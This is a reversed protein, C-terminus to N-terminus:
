KDIVVQSPGGVAEDIRTSSKMVLLWSEEEGTQSKVIVEVDYRPLTDNAVKRPVPNKYIKEARVFKYKGTSLAEMWSRWPEPPNSEQKDFYSKAFEWKGEELYKMFETSKQLMSKFAQDNAGTVKVDISSQSMSQNTKEHDGVSNVPIVAPQKNPLFLIVAICIVSVSPVVILSSRRQWVPKRKFSSPLDLRKQLMHAFFSLIGVSCAFFLGPAAVIWPYSRLYDTGYAIMSAWEGNRSILFFKMDDVFYPESGGVFVSLVALQGVLFLVQVYETLFGHLLEPRFQPLVHRRIIQATSAGLSQSVTVYEKGYFFRARDAIQDALPFVGAIVLLSFMAISFFTIRPDDPPLGSNIALSQSLSYLAPFLILILPVSASIIQVIRLTGRLVGTVGSYIGIPIAILFRALTVALGIGLTYKAGNLLLSLLDYGRHDTGLVYAQSPPFPPTLMKMEGDVLMREMTVKDSENITHPMFYSGFFAVFLLAIM